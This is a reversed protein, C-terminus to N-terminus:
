SASKKFEKEQEWLTKQLNLGIQLTFNRGAETAQSDDGCPKPM